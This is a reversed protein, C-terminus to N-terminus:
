ASKVGVLALLCTWSLVGVVVAWLRVDSSLSGSLFAVAAALGVLALAVALLTDYREDYDIRAVEPTPTPRPERRIGDDTRVARLLWRARALVAGLLGGVFLGIVLGSTDGVLAFGLGVVAAPVLVLAVTEAVDLAVLRPDRERLQQLPM